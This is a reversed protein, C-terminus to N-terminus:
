LGSQLWDAILHLVESREPEVEPFALFDHWADSAETYKLNSGLDDEMRDRLVRIQDRLVEAGGSSIFTRPFGKFSIPGMCPSQSAPSIYRNTYGASYGLNGFFNGTLFTYGPGALYLYDTDKNTYISSSSDSPEPGLDVWPSNLILAAPARPITIDTRGQNDLLYRALALALNGGASDGEVIIDEPAFGVEQILYNYGAIADLLAAPFPNSPTQNAPKSNRYEVQFARVLFPGVHKLIGRSINSTLDDPHASMAAYGGGHLAYLVKEGAQPRANIPLDVGKKEIWYGPIDVADVNNSAAWQKVEGVILHPVAPIWVAKVKPEIARYDPEHWWRGARFVCGYTMLAEEFFFVWSSVERFYHDPAEVVLTDTRTQNAMVTEPSESRPSRATDLFSTTFIGHDLRRLSPLFM